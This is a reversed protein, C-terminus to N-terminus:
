WSTFSVGTGYYCCTLLFLSQFTVSCAREIYSQLDDLRHLHANAAGSYLSNGYELISM